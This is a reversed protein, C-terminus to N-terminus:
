SPAVRVAAALIPAHRKLDDAVPHQLEVRVPRITEDVALRRALRGPEIVRVPGGQSRRDLAPRRWRDVADHAPPDDIKTLPQVLLEPDRDGLLREAPFRAGHAVAFERGARAMMRLGFARDLIKFFM